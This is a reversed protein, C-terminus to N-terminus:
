RLLLWEDRPLRFPPHYDLMALRVYYPNYNSYHLVWKSTRDGFRGFDYCEIGIHYHWFKKEKARKVKEEFDPDTPPVNISDKNRGELGDLGSERVHNAFRFVKGTESEELNQLHQLLKKGFEVRM